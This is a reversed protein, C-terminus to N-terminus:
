TSRKFDKYYKEKIKESFRVYYIYYNFCLIDADSKKITKNKDTFM